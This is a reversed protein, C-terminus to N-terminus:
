KESEKVEKEVEKIQAKVDQKFKGMAKSKGCLIESM